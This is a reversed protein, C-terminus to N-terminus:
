LKLRLTGKRDGSKILAAKGRRNSKFTDQWRSCTREGKLVELIHAISVDPNGNKHAEHLIEIMQAQQATLRHTEGRVTVTRYDPNHSFGESTKLKRQRSAGRNRKSAVRHIRSDRPPSLSGKLNLGIGLKSPGVGMLVDGHLPEASPGHAETIARRQLRSCFTASAVCVRLIMGGEKSAAFLEKSNNERLDLYLRHLWFDEADTGEPSGLAVGARAALVRFRELFNENVGDDLAWVGCEPTKLLCFLGQGPKGEEWVEPHEKYSCYARLLRDKPAAREIRAEEDALQMFRDQFDRWVDADMGAEESTTGDSAVDTPTEPSLPLGPTAGETQSRQGQAGAPEGRLALATRLQKLAVETRELVRDPETQNGTERLRTEPYARRLQLLREEQEEWRKLSNRLDETGLSELIHLSYDGLDLQILIPDLLRVGALWPGKTKRERFM